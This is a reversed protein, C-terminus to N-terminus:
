QAASLIRQAITEDTYGIQQCLTGLAPIRHRELLRMLRQPCLATARGGLPVFSFASRSRSFGLATKTLSHLWYRFQEDLKLVLNRVQPIGLPESAHSDYRHFAMKVREEHSKAVEVSQLLRSLASLAV